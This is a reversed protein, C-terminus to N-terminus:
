WPRMAYMFDHLLCCDRAFITIAISAALLYGTIFLNIQRFQGLLEELRSVTINAATFLLARINSTLSLKERSSYMLTWPGCPCYFGDNRGRSAYFDDVWQDTGSPNAERLTFPGDNRWIKQAVISPSRERALAFYELWDSESFIRHHMHHANWIRRIKKPEVRWAGGVDVSIKAKITYDLAAIVNTSDNERSLDACLVEALGNSPQTGPLIATIPVQLASAIRHLQETPIRCKGKEYKGLTGPALGIERALARLGVSHRKRLDRVLQGARRDILRKPEM